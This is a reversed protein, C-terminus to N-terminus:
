KAAFPISKKLCTELQIAQPTQADFGEHVTVIHIDSAVPNIWNCSFCITEAAVLKGSRYFRIGYRPFDCKKGFQGLSQTRGLKALSRAADPGLHIEPNSGLISRSVIFVEARDVEPLSTTFFHDDAISAVAWGTSIGFLVSLIVGM